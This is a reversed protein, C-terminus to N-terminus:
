ASRGGLHKNIAGLVCEVPIRDICKPQHKCVPSYSCFCPSQDDFIKVLQNNYDYIENPSTPSFIAVSRRGLALALHMALSDGSVTLRCSAVDQIYDELSDRQKYFLVSLGRDRLEKALQNYNSWGKTPWRSGVRAELGVDYVPSSDARHGLVYPQGMFKHGVMGFLYDQYTLRNSKKLRNAQEKGLKSILSMDFWPAAEETYSLVNGEELYAGVLRDTSLGNVFRLVDLSEELCIILDFRKSELIELSTSEEWLFVKKIYPNRRLLAENYRSTLWFVEGGLVSCISMTRVVDGSAGLKIILTRM